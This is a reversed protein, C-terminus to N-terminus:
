KKAFRHIHKKIFGPKKAGLLWEAIIYGLLGCGIGLLIDIIYHHSTYIAGFWISVMSLGFLGTLWWNKYRTSYITLLMPFAAHMSPLAGFVNSSQSYMNAYLPFGIMEDFRGLGATQGLTNLDITAGYELYYWPPAAPMTIYIIFGILNTILFATWYNFALFRRKKFFLYITFALPFPVWSIYFIGSLIDLFKYQHFQFYENWTARTGNLDIGFWAVELDYLDKNHITFTNYDHLIRLSDYLILYIFFPLFVYFFQRTRSTAFFLITILAYFIYTMSNPGVLLFYWLFYVISFICYSLIFKIDWHHKEADVKPM